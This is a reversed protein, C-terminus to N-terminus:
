TALVIGLDRPGISPEPAKSPRFEEWVVVPRVSIIALTSSAKAGQPTTSPTRTSTSPSVYGSSVAPYWFRVSVLDDNEDSEGIGGVRHSSSIISPRQSDVKRVAAGNASRFRRPTPSPRPVQAHSKPAPHM